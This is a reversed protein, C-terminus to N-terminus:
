STENHKEQKSPKKNESKKAESLNNRRGFNIFKIWTEYFGRGFDDNWVSELQKSLLKRLRVMKETDNFLESSKKKNDKLSVIGRVAM